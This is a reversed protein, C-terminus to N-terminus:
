DEVDLLKCIKRRVHTFDFLKGITVRFKYRGLPEFHDIGSIEQLMPIYRSIDFNTHALRSEQEYAEIMEDFLGENEMEEDIDEDDFEQSSLIENMIEKKHIAAWSIQKKETNKYLYRRKLFIM